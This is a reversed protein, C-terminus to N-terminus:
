RNEIQMAWSARLSVAFDSQGREYTDAPAGLLRIHNRRVELGFSALGVSVDARLGYGVGAGWVDPFANSYAASFSSADFDYHRLHGGALASVTVPGPQWVALAADVNALRIIVSGIEV